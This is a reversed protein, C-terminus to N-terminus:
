PLAKKFFSIKGESILKEYVSVLFGIGCWIVSYIPCIQGLINGKVASYDWVGMGLILNFVVGFLFEVGTITIGGVLAKFYLPASKMKSFIKMMLLLCIGGAVAMSWHSYGRWLTELIYYGAAGFLFTGGDKKLKEMLDGM